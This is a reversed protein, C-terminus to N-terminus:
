IKKKKLCYFDPFPKKRQANELIKLFEARCTKKNKGTLDLRNKGLNKTLV